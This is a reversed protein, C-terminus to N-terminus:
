DICTGWYVPTSSEFIALDRKECRQTSCRSIAATSLVTSRNQGKVSYNM